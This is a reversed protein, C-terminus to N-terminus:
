SPKILKALNPKSTKVTRTIIYTMYREVSLNAALLGNMLEQFDTLTPTVVKMVYDTGGGTTMCDLIEDMDKIHTEFREFDSKRHQSLSLTVVVLTFDTLKSLAIEASYNLILNATKLKDLRAWCATASLNVQEALQAKSLRGHNQLATLIRIDTADLANQKM